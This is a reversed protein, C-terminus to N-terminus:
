KKLNKILDGYHGSSQVERKSLLELNLHLVINEMTKAWNNKDVKPAEADDTKKQELEWQLQYNLVCTSNFCGIDYAKSCNKMMKFMFAALKLKKVALISIQNGRDPTMGSVLGGPRGIMDCTAAIDENSLSALTWPSDIQQDDM